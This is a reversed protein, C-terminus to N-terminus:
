EEVVLVFNGLVQVNFSALGAQDDVRISAAGSIPYVPDYDRTIENYIMATLRKPDVVKKRDYPLTIEAPANLLTRYPGFYITQSVARPHVPLPMGPGAQGQIGIYANFDDKAADLYDEIRQYENIPRIAEDATNPFRHTAPRFADDWTYSEPKGPQPDPRVWIRAGAFAGNRIEIVGGDGMTVPGEALIELGLDPFVGFREIGGRIRNAYGIMFEEALDNFAETIQVRAYGSNCATADPPRYQDYEGPATYRECWTISYDGSNMEEITNLPLDNLERIEVATNNSDKYWHSLVIVIEKRSDERILTELLNRVTQFKLPDGRNGILPEYIHAYGMLSNSRSDPSGVGGSNTFNLRYAGGGSEDFAALAYAKFSLYNLFANEHYVYNIESVAKTLASSGPKSGPWPYGHTAYIVSVEAGPGVRDLQRGLNNTLMHNYEPTRGVQRVHELRMGDDSVEFGARCLAKIPHNRDWVVNAYINHDTTERAVLLKTYGQEAYDV